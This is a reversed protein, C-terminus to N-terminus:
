RATSTMNSSSSSDPCCIASSVPTRKGVTQTQSCRPRACSSLRNMASSSLLRHSQTATTEHPRRRRTRRTAVRQARLLRPPRGGLRPQARQDPAHLHRRTQVGRRVIRDPALQAPRLRGAPVARGLGGDRTPAASAPAAPAPPQSRPRFSTDRADRRLRRDGPHPPDLQGPAVLRRRSRARRVRARRESM